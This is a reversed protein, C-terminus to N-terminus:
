FWCLALSLVVVYFIRKYSFSFYTNEDRNMQSMNVIKWGHWQFPAILIRGITKRSVILSPECTRLVANLRKCHCTLQAMHVDWATSVWGTWRGALLYKRQVSTALLNGVALRLVNLKIRRLIIINLICFLVGNWISLCQPLTCTNLLSFEQSYSKPNSELLSSYSRFKTQKTNNKQKTQKTKNKTQTQKTEHKIKNKNQEKNPSTLHM